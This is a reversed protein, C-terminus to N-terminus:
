DELAALREEWVHCAICIDWTIGDEDVWLGPYPREHLKGCLCCRIWGEGRMLSPDTVTRGNNRSGGRGRISRPIDGGMGM